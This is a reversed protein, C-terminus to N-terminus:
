VLVLRVALAIMVCGIVLDLVRWTRPRNLAPSAVRAGYGLGSFWLVSGMAAGVAFLWRNGAYGNAVSGLMVVTDLYVHPNLYTLALTTVIV